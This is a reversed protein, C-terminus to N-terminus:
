GGGDPVLDEVSGDDGFSEVRAAGKEPSDPDGFNVSSEEFYVADAVVEAADGGADGGARERGEGAGRSPVRAAGGLMELGGGANTRSSGPRSRLGRRASLVRSSGPRHAAASELRAPPATEALDAVSTPQAAGGGGPRAAQLSRLTSDRDALAGRLREAERQSEELAGHAQQLLGTQEASLARLKGVEDRLAARERDGSKSAAVVGDKEARLAGEKEKLEKKLAKAGAQQERLEEELRRVETEKASVLAHLSQAAEAREKLKVRGAKKEAERAAREEALRRQAAELEGRLDEAAQAVAEERAEGGGAAKGRLRAELSKVKKDAADVQPSAAHGILVPHPVRRTWKTRSTPPPPAGGGGAVDAGCGGLGRERARVGGGRARVRCRWAGALSGPRAAVKRRLADEMQQRAKLGKEPPLSHTYLLSM